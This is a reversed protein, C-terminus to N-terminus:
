IELNINKSIAMSPKSTRKREGGSIGKKGGPSGIQTNEAKSLAFADITQRIRSAKDTTKPLRLKASMEIAEKVTMTDLIVDDQFVFGSFKKIETRILSASGIYLTGSLEADKPVEGAQFNNLIMKLNFNQSVSISLLSTKGAGSPGLIATSRNARFIGTLDHLIQKQSKTIRHKAFPLHRKWGLSRLDEKLKATDTVHLEINRFILDGSDGSDDHEIQQSRLIEM